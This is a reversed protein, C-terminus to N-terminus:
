TYGAMALYSEIKKFMNVSSANVYVHILRNWNNITRTDLRCYIKVLAATHGRTMSDEKLKFFMNSDIDEYGNLINLVEIQDRSLRRTEITTLGSELLSLM